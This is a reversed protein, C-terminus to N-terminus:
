ILITETETILTTLAFEGLIEHAFSTPHIADWFLYEDPNSCGVFTVPDLCPESVNTLPQGRGRLAPSTRGTLGFEEPTTLIENFIGNVNFPIPNIGTLSDRLDDLTTDLLLNHERTLNTLTDAPVLSASSLALPTKGLDPLNPVLFNRAGIDYLSEIATKLNGVIEEPQADPINQYDNAGAWVIYLADSDALEVQQHDNVFWDVQTLVGPRFGALEGANREGTQAGGFAFNVSQTTTTGNFFPSIEIGEPTFTVPSPLRFQPNFVSLETSPTLTLGLDEALNEVWVPGNSFRGEFYPPSPPIVPIDVELFEEFSQVYTTANFLNGSDSLSDGFVYLKSFTNAQSFKGNDKGALCKNSGYGALLDEQGSCCNFLDSNNAM